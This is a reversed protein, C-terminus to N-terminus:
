SQAATVILDYILRKHTEADSVYIGHTIGTVINSDSSRHKLDIAAKHSFQRISIEGWSGRSACGIQNFPTPPTTFNLLNLSNKGVDLNPGGIKEIYKELNSSEPALDHLWIMGRFVPYTPGSPDTFGLIVSIFEGSKQVKHCNFFLFEKPAQTFDIEVGRKPTGPKDTKLMKKVAAM